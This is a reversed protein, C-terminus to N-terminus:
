VFTEEFYRIVNGAHPPYDVNRLDICLDFSIFYTPTSLGLASESIHNSCLGDIHVKETRNGM